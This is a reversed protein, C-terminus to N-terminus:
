PRAAALLLFRPVPWQAASGDPPACERIADLRFGARRVATVHDEITTREFYGGSGTHPHAFTAILRGGPVLWEFCTRLAGDGELARRAVILEYSGPAAQVNDLAGPELELVRLGDTPGLVDAIAPAELIAEPDANSVTGTVADAVEAAHDGPATMDVVLRQQRWPEFKAGLVQNWGPASPDAEVRRRHENLDTCVVEVIVLQAQVRAAVARWPERAAEIANTGDVVVTAGAILAREAALASAAAAAVESTGGRPVGARVIAAEVEPIGVVVAGLAMGVARALTTKGTGPLGSLVILSAM